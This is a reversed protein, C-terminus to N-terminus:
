LVFVNQRVKRRAGSKCFIFIVVVLFTFTIVLSVYSYFEQNSLQDISGFGPVYFGHSTDWNTIKDRSEFKKYDYGQYAEFARSQELMREESMYGFFCKNIVNRSNKLLEDFNQAQQSYVVREGQHFDAPLKFEPSLIESRYNGDRDLVIDKKIAHLLEDLLWFCNYKMYSSDLCNSDSFLGISGSNEFGQLQPVFGLVPVIDYRTLTPRNIFLDTENKLRATLLYGDGPFQAINTGSAISLSSNDISMAGAYSGSGFAMGYSHLLSNLAPINSGGTIPKWITETIQSYFENKKILPGNYWDAFVLLSLGEMEIDHHLKMIELDTFLEEPDVVMLVKYNLSNFCMFNERLIEVYYGQDYLHKFTEHFNTFLHDGHWEYAYDYLELSDRPVYGDNPYKLSHFQDWLIRREREPTPIINFLVRITSSFGVQERAEENTVRGNIKIHLMIEGRLDPYTESLTVWFSFHGFYPYLEKSYDLNIDLVDSPLLSEQSFMREFDSLQDHLPLKPRDVLAVNEIAIEPVGEIEGNLGYGNILTSNFFIPMGTAYLPQLNYPFFFPDTLNYFSPFASFKNKRSSELYTLAAVPDFAGSGQEYISLKDIPKSSEIIAQKMEAPNIEIGQKRFHSLILAIGGAVIPSAVSTGSSIDCDKTLGLSYINESSALVDPKVRGMGRPLEWTTMGRSSFAAVNNGDFNLGGVGLVELQDAPNNLTGFYPGDNGIASVIHIGSAVLQRIKNVYPEDKFDNGGNSLNIIDVGERLADNFADLFWQTHSIKKASFVKYVILESNPAIGPCKKHHSTLIGAIFTGHGHHDTFNEEDTYDKIKLIKKRNLYENTHVVGTDFLAIKVKDGRIHKKKFYDLDMVKSIPKPKSNEYLMRMSPDDALSPLENRQSLEGFDRLYDIPVTFDTENLKISETNNPFAAPMKRSLKMRKPSKPIEFKRNTYIGMIQSNSGYKKHFYPVHLDDLEILVMDTYTDLEINPRDVITYLPENYTIRKLKLVLKEYVDLNKFQIILQGGRCAPMVALAIVMCIYPFYAKLYSKM